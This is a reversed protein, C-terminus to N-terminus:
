ASKQFNYIWAFVIGIVLGLIGLGLVGLAVQGISIPATSQIPTLNLGHAFSSFFDLTATPWLAVAAACVINILALTLGLAIGVRIGHLREM